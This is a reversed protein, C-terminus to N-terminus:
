IISSYGVNIVKQNGKPLLHMVALNIEKPTFELHEM